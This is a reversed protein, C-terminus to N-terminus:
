FSRGLYGLKESGGLRYAWRLDALLAEMRGAEFFRLLSRAYTRAVQNAHKYREHEEATLQPLFSVEDFLQRVLRRVSAERGTRWLHLSALAFKDIEAQVELELLSVPRPVTARHILYLFHSVGELALCFVHLGQALLAEVDHAVGKMRNLLSPAYYVGLSLEGGQEMVLLEEDRSPIQVGLSSLAQSSLIFDEVRHRCSLGHVTQLESQLLGFLENM